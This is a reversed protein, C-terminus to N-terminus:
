CPRSHRSRFPRPLFGRVCDEGTGWAALMSLVLLAALGPLFWPGEERTMWAWGLMAGALLATLLSERRTRGILFLVCLSFVLLTQPWYIQERIVRRLPAVSGAPHLELLVFAVSALLKSQTLRLTMYAAVAVACLQFLAQTLTLPLGSASSLALFFPYGPGKALTLNDYAGLWQGDLLNGALKMFLGDDHSAFFYFALPLGLDMWVRIAGVVMLAVLLLPGLLKRM